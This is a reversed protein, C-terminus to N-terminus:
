GLWIHGKLADLIVSSSKDVKSDISIFQTEQSIGSKEINKQTLAYSIQDKAIVYISTSQSLYDYGLHRQLEGIQIVEISEGMPVKSILDNVLSLPSQSEILITTKKSGSKKAFHKALLNLYVKGKITKFFDYHRYEEVLGLNPAFAEFMSRRQTDIEALSITKPLSPRNQTCPIEKFSFHNKFYNAIRLSYGTLFFAHYNELYEYPLTMINSGAVDLHGGWGSIITPWGKSQAQAISVGYDEHLFNSFSIIIPNKFSKEEIWSKSDQAPLFSIHDNMKLRSVLDILADKYNCDLEKAGPLVENDSHGIIFLKAPKSLSQHFKSFSTILLEINKTPSIRGSYVFDYTNGHNIDPGLPFLDYRPILAVQEESFGYVNTFINKVAQSMVWFRYQDKKWNGSRLFKELHSGFFVIDVIETDPFGNLFYSNDDIFVPSSIQFHTELWSSTLQKLLDMSRHCPDEKISMFPRILPHEKISLKLM